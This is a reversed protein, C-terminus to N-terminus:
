ASITLSMAQYIGTNGRMANIADIDLHAKVEGPLRTPSPIVKIPFALETV